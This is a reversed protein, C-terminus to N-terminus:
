KNQGQRKMFELARRYEVPFVKVFRPRRNEWDALIRKARVSGTAAIHEEILRRLLTEDESGSEVSELDVTDVNCSLDFHGTEDYVYALGGTMGAAFNM